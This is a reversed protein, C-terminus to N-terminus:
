SEEPNAPDIFFAGSYDFPLWEKHFDEFDQTPNLDAFQEPHIWKAFAELAFVNYPNDYFQHYVAFYNGTKTADLQDMGAQSLPGDCTQLALEPSSQYGLEVHRIADTRNPDRAWEGGTVILKDPNLEILKEATITTNDAGLVEPGLNHGGAATVLTGLNSDGAVACCDNFGAAMWILVDPRDTTDAVRDTIEKVKANYFENYQEARESQGLLDGLLQISVTTNELPKQRFDIFAYKLGAADMDSLFGSEEVAKKQDLTMIVVDPRQALLNEVTVDGKQIMGITPMDKAEPQLEFLKDRFAGAAKELDQGYAVVNRLPEDQLLATAYAARGEALVIREPLEDFQLTRGAADTVTVAGDAAQTQSTGSHSSAAESTSVHTTDADGGNDACATLGLATAVAVGFVGIRHSLKM